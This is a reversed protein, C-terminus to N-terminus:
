DESGQEGEEPPLEEKKRKEILEPEVPAPAAAEEPKVEEVEEPAAYIVRAVVENAETLVEVGKGLFLDAVTITNGIAELKELDVTLREPLDAPLGEVEIESVGTVLVGGLSRVAPAEGVLEVPVRARIAVDLAVKLFDVHRLEHRIFDRQVERVLVKHVEGGLELDLLTTGSVGALAKSALHGDLEIATAEIGRGYLVAPLVGARRLSRVQKGRVTRPRAKLPQAQM